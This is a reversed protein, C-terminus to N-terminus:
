QSVRAREIPQSLVITKTDAPIDGTIVVPQGALASAGAVYQGLDLAYAHGGVVLQASPQVQLTGEIVLRADKPTFGNDRAIAQISELGVTANKEFELDAYGENLSIKVSEIGPLARMAKDLGYACPACDMGFISQKVHLLGEAAAIPPTAALVFPALYKLLPHM